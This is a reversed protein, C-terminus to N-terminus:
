KKIARVLLIAIIAAIPGGLMALISEPGVGVIFKGYNLLLYGVVVSVAMGVGVSLPFGVANGRNNMISNMGAGVVAGLVLLVILFPM